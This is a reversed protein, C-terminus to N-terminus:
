PAPPVVGGGLALQLAARDALRDIRITIVDFQTDLQEIRDVMPGSHM